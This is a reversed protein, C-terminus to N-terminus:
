LCVKGLWNVCRRRSTMSALLLRLALPSLKRMQTSPPRITSRLLPTVPTSNWGNSRKAIDTPPPLRRVAARSLPINPCGRQDTKGNEIRGVSRGPNVAPLRQRQFACAATGCGFETVCVDTPGVKRAPIPNMSRRETRDSRGIATSRGPQQSRILTPAHSREAQCRWHTRAIRSRRQDSSSSFRRHCGPRLALHRRRVFVRFAMIGRAATNAFIGMRQVTNCVWHLVVGYGVGGASEPRDIRM